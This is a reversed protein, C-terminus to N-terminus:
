KTNANTSLSTIKPPIFPDNRLHLSVGDDQGEYLEADYSSRDIEDDLISHIMVNDGSGSIPLTPYVADDDPVDTEISNNLCVSNITYLQEM